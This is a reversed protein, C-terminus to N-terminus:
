SAYPPRDVSQNHGRAEERFKRRERLWHRLAVTFVFVGMAGVVLGAISAGHFRSRRADVAIFAKALPDDPHRKGVVVRGKVAVTRNQKLGPIPESVFLIMIGAHDLPHAIVVDYRRKERVDM